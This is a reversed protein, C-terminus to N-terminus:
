AGEASIFRTTETGTFTYDGQMAFWLAGILTIESVRLVSDCYALLSLVFPTTM